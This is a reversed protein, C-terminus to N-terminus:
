YAASTQWLKGELFCADKLKMSATVMQLLIPGFFFDTVAELKEGDIWWLTIPSSAMTKMEQINLKLSAKDSEEKVKMPLSKREEKSEAM